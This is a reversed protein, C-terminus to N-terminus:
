IEVEVNTGSVRTTYRAVATQAPPRLVEGSTVRFVAGHRPCTVQEGEIAGQSLSGGRHPCTDDIAYYTGAVNFLALTKGGVHVQKAGGLGLEDTTAVTVFKAMERGEEQCM